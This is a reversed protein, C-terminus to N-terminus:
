ISKIPLYFDNVTPAPVGLKTAELTVWTDVVNLDISDAIHEVLFGKNSIKDRKYFIKSSIRLLYSALRGGGVNWKHMIRGVDHCEYGAARALVNSGEALAQTVGNEIARQIMRAYHAAGPENGVHGISAIPSVFPELLSYGARPGGVLFAEPTEGEFAVTRDCELRVMEMLHVDTNQSSLARCISDNYFQIGRDDDGEEQGWRLVADGSELVLCLRRYVQEFKADDGYTGFVVIKRPSALRAAMEEPTGSPLMCRSARPSPEDDDEGAEIQSRYEGVVQPVFAPDEDAVCVRLRNSAHHAALSQGLATLGIVGLECPDHSM